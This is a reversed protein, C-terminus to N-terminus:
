TTAPNNLFLGRVSDKNDDIPAITPQQITIPKNMMPELIGLFYIGM